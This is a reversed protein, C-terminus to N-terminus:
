NCFWGSRFIDPATTKIPMKQRVNRHFAADLLSILGQQITYIDMEQVAFLLEHLELQTQNKVPTFQFPKGVSPQSTDLILAQYSLELDCRINAELAWECRPRIQMQGLNFLRIGMSFPLQDGSSNWNTASTFPGQHFVFRM